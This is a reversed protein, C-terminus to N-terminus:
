RVFWAKKLIAMSFYPLNSLNEPLPYIKEKSTTLNEGIWGRHFDKLLAFNRQFLSAVKYFLCTDSLELLTELRESSITGPIISMVEGNQILPIGLRAGMAQYASIGPVIRVELSTRRQLEPLLKFFSGYLLPDGLVLFVAEKQSCEAMKSLITRSLEQRNKSFNLQIVRCRESLFPKVIQYARSSTESGMLPAFVLEAKQLIEVAALTLLKPDGPGVGVVWMRM